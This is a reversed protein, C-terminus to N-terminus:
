KVHLHDERRLPGFVAVHSVPCPGYGFWTQSWKEGNLVFNIIDNLRELRSIPMGPYCCLTITCFSSRGRGGPLCVSSLSASLLSVSFNHEDIMMKVADIQPGPNQERIQAPLVDHLRLTRRLHSAIYYLLPLSCATITTISFFYHLLFLSM